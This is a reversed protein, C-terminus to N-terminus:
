RNIKLHEQINEIQNLSIKYITPWPVYTEPESLKSRKGELYIIDIEKNYKYEVDRLRKVTFNM